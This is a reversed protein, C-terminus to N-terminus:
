SSGGSRASLVMRKINPDTSAEALDIPSQGFENIGDLRAGADILMQVISANGAGIAECIAQNGLEGVADVNAGGALLAAVEDPRARACAVNLPYSDFRGRQNVTLAPMDIFDPLEEDLYRSLVEDATM